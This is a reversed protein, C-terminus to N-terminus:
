PLGAAGWGLGPANPEPVEIPRAECSENGEVAAAMALLLEAATLLRGDLPFAAPITDPLEDQLQKALAVVRARPLAVGEDVRSPARTQPPQLAHLRVMPGEVKDSLVLDFALFAETLNLEGPLVRPLSDTSALLARAAEHVRDLPVLRGATTAGSELPGDRLALRADERALSPTTPVIGAPALVERLWRVLVATDDAGTRATDLAVRVTGFPQEMSGFIAQSARDAALPTFAGVLPDAGCQGAYPGGQLVVNSRPMGEFVAAIRPAATAAGNTPIVQHIGAKGLIAEAMRPPSPVLVTEIASQKRYRAFLSRMRKPDGVADRPVQSDTLRLAVEDGAEGARKVLALVADSPDSELPVVLTARSHAESIATLMADAREPHLPDAWVELLVRVKAAEPPLALAFPADAPASLDCEAAMAAVVWWM